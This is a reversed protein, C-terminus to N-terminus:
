DSILGKHLKEGNQSRFQLYADLFSSCEPTCFTFYEENSGDYVTIKYISNIKEINRLKLLPIAGIRLGNSAMLLIISKMRLDSVHLIKKIEDHSYARDVSKVFEEKFMNIKKKNLPVDNMEYFHYIAHLNLRISNIIIGKRKIVDFVKSNTKTTRNDLSGIVKRCWM